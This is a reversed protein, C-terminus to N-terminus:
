EELHWESYFQSLFLKMFQHREEALQSGTQTHMLKKLKLL